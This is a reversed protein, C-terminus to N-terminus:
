VKIILLYTTNKSYFGVYIMCVVDDSKSVLIFSHSVGQTSKGLTYKNIRNTGVGMVGRMGGTGFELDKYFAEKLEETGKAKLDLITDQTKQDFVPTLWENIRTELDSSTTQM